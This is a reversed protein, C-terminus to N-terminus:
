SSWDRRKSPVARRLYQKLMTVAENSLKAVESLEEVSARLLEAETTYGLNFLKRAMRRGIHPIFSEMLPILEEKVGLQIRRGLISFQKSLRTLSLHIAIASVAFLVRGADVTLRHLETPSISASRLINEESEEDIWRMLVRMATDLELLRTEEGREIALARVSLNIMLQPQIEDNTRLRSFSNKLFLVTAPHLHLSTVISGLETCRYKENVVTILGDQLLRVLPFFGSLSSAIIEEAFEKGSVSSLLYRALGILHDCLWYGEIGLTSPDTRRKDACSCRAGRSSFSSTVWASGDGKRVRAEIRDKSVYQIRFDFHTGRENDANGFSTIPAEAKPFSHKLSANESGMRGFSLILELSEQADFSDGKLLSAINVGRHAISKWWLTKSLFEILEDTSCEGCEHIRAMLQELMSSGSFLKSRIAPRKPETYEGKDQGEVGLFTRRTYEEEAKSDVLIVGYGIKDYGLRGARGLMQHLRDPEIRRALTHSSIGPSQVGLYTTDAVIVTRAPTNVGAGLTSTCVIVKIIGERFGEEVVSRDESRLGANHFAVCGQVASALKRTVALIEENDQILVTSLAKADAKQRETLIEQLPKLISFAIQESRSRSSTFIMVSGGHQVTGLSLEVVSKVKDSTKVIDLSLPIPRKDGVILKCGLWEAIEPANAIPPSLAVLKAHPINERLRIITAELRPGREKESLYNIEDIVVLKIRKLWWTKSRVMSDFREYTMILVQTSLDAATMAPPSDGTSIAVKLGSGDLATRLWNLQQLALARLPVLLVAKRNDEADRLLKLVAMMAILTKGSGSPAVVLLSADKLIGESLALRQIYNLKRIGLKGLAEDLVSEFDERPEATARPLQFGL